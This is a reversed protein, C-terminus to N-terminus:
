QERRAVKKRRRKAVWLCILGDLTLPVVPVDILTVLSLLFRQLYYKPDLDRVRPLWHPLSPILEWLAVFAFGSVGAILLLQGAKRLKVPGLVACMFLTPLLLFTLWFGHNALLPPLPPGCGWPGCILHSATSMPLNQIQLVGLLLLGWGGVVIAVKWGSIKDLDITM